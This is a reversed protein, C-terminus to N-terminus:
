PSHRTPPGSGSFQIVLVPIAIVLLWFLMAWAIRRPSLKPAPADYFYFTNPAAERIAGAYVYRDFEKLVASPLAERPVATAPSLAGADRMATRVRRQEFISLSHM